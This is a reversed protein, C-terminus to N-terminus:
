CEMIHICDICLYNGKGTLQSAGIMFEDYINSKPRFEIDVTQWQDTHQVKYSYILQHFNTGSDKIHLNLFDSETNIKFRFYLRYKKGKGLVSYLSLCAYRGVKAEGPKVM